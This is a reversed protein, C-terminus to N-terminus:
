QNPGLLVNREIFLLIRETKNEALLVSVIQKLAKVTANVLLLLMLDPISLCNLTTSFM